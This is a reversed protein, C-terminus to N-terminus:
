KHVNKLSKTINYESVMTLYNINYEVLLNKTSVTFIPHLEDNVILPLNRNKLYCIKAEIEVVPIHRLIKYYKKKDFGEREFIAALMDINNRIYWKMSINNLLNIQEETLSNSGDEFGLYVRYSDRQHRIWRGLDIANRDDSRTIGDLTKFQAPVLLNHNHQFYNCALQYIQHWRQKSRTSSIDLTELLSVHKSTIGRFHKGTEEFRQSASRVTSLWKDLNYGNEDYNVGDFSKFNLPLDLNGYHEKYAKIRNFMDMWKDSIINDEKDSLKIKMLQEYSINYKEKLDSKKTTFIPHLLHKEIGINNKILYNIKAQVEKAPIKNLIHSNERYSIKYKKCLFRVDELNKSYDWIINLDELEKIREKSLNKNKYEKKVYLIWRGLTIADKHDSSRFGDLTKFESPVVLHNYFNFFKRAVEMKENWKQEWKNGAVGLDELMEKQKSTLGRSYNSDKNDLYFYSRNVSLWAGLNYGNPDEHIGDFTNFKHPIDCNGYYDKYAKVLNYMYFWKYSMTKEHLGIKMLLNAKEENLKSPENNIYKKLESKQVSVWYGLNPARTYKSKTYGDKTRFSSPIATTNNHEIYALYLNYYYHWDKYKM